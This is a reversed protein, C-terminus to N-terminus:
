RHASLAAAFTALGDIVDGAWGLLTRVTQAAGVPDRIILTLLALAVLVGVVRSGAGGTTMPMMATRRSMAEETLSPPKTHRVLKQGDLRGCFQGVVGEM